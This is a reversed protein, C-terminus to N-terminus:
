LLNIFAQEIVRMNDAWLGREKIIKANRLAADTLLKPSRIAEVIKNALYKPNDIPVLYGNVGDDIWEKNGPIDTVIPFVGCAMAELLTVSTSDCVSTSVYITASKLIKAVGNQSLPSVFEINVELENALKKINDKMSGDYLMIIRVKEEKVVFYLARVFLEPNYISELARLHVILPLKVKECSLNFVQPEIGMPVNLIRYEPIGFKGVIDVLVKGDVTILDAYRLAFRIRSKHLFTKYPPDLVDSGWCSIVLPHKDILAGILGYNPVFHANIIDCEIASVEKKIRRSALPYKLWRIRIRSGFIHEYAKTGMSKELSILHVEWSRNVFYDVWRKIHVSGADGLICLRM